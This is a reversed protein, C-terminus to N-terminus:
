PCLAELIEAVIQEHTKGACLVTIQAWQRYLPTREEYLQAVTERPSMVVGRTQLNTLRREILDPPLELHIIVGGRALHNMARESYPVSGGTAIVHGRVDIALVHREELALFADRGCVDIIEQLVRGERSQIAVDTDLFDRSAAKALLVGVTSKGVGPMGILVLNTTADILM